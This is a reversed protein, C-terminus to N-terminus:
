AAYESARGKLAASLLADFDREGKNALDIVRIALMEKATQDACRVERCATHIVQALLNLDAPDFVNYM